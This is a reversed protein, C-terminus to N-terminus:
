VIASRELDFVDIQEREFLATLTAAGEYSAFRRESEAIPVMMLWAIQLGDCDLTKPGNQWLFPDVMMIHPLQTNAFYISLIDPHIADPRIPVGDKFGNFACSAAVNPAFSFTSPFAGVLEVRVKGLGLDHDSLGLTGVATVGSVPSDECSAIDVSNQERQDWHRFVAPKKGWTRMLERAALRSLDSVEM